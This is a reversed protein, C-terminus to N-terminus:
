EDENDEEDEPENEESSAHEKAFVLFPTIPRWFTQEGRRANEVDKEDMLDAIYTAKIGKSITRDEREFSLGYRDGDWNNAKYCLVEAGDTRVVYLYEIDGHIGGTVEYDSDETIRDVVEQFSPQTGLEKYKAVLHAGVGEPYGDCHHYLYTAKNESVSMVIISSRTSM